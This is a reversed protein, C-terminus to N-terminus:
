KRKLSDMVEKVRPKDSAMEIVQLDANLMRVGILRFGRGGEQAQYLALVIREEKELAIKGLVWYLDNVGAQTGGVGGALMGPQPSPLPAIPAAPVAPPLLTPQALRDRLRQVEKTLDVMAQESDFKPQEIKKLEELGQRLSGLEKTIASLDPPPPSCAAALLLLVPSWTRM